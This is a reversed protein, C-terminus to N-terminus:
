DAGLRHSVFRELFVARRWPPRGAAGAEGPDVYTFYYLYSKVGARTMAQTISYAGCAFEDSELEVSRIPVDADSNVSYAQFEKDPTSARTKAYTNRTTM